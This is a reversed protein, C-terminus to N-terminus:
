KYPPRCLYGQGQIGWISRPFLGIATTEGHTEISSQDSIWVEIFGSDAFEASCSDDEPWSEFRYGEPLDLVLITAHPLRWHPSCRKKEKKAIAIAAAWFIAFNDLSGDYDSISELFERREPNYEIRTIEVGVISGDQRSCLFDPSESDFNISLPEGTAHFRATLFKSVDDHEAEKDYCAM